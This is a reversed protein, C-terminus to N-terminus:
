RSGRRSQNLFMGGSTQDIGGSTQTQADWPPINKTGKSSKKIFMGGSTKVEIRVRTTYASLSIERVSVGQQQQDLLNAPHQGFLNTLYCNYRDDDDFPSSRM